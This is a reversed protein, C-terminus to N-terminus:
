ARVLKVGFVQGETDQKREKAERITDSDGKGAKGLGKKAMDKETRGLHWEKGIEYIPLYLGLYM